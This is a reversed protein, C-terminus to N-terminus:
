SDVKAVRTKLLLDHFMRGEKEFFLAYLLSVITIGVFIYHLFYLEPNIKAVFYDRVVNSTSFLAGELTLVGIFERVFFEKRTLRSGDRHVVRIKAIRKGVTAGKRAPLGIFYFANLVFIAALAIVVGRDSLQLLSNSTTKQQTEISYIFVVAMSNLLAVLYWDILYALLRNGFIKSKKM